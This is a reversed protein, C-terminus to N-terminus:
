ARHTPAGPSGRGTLRGRRNSTAFPLAIGTASASNKFALEYQAMHAAIAPDGERALEERQLAQVAALWRARQPREIGPPDALYLVADKGARLQTGQHEAPLFGAGWLRAYIPQDGKGQTVLVCYTPLEDSENGLGYSLWAGVSPRGAIQSGTQFFTIAPDHNIGEKHLSRVICLDGVIRATEPFEDCV